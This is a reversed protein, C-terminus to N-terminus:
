LVDGGVNGQLSARAYIADSRRVDNSEAAM